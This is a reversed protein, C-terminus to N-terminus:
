TQPRNLRHAARARPQQVVHTRDRRVLASSRTRSLSHACSRANTQQASSP